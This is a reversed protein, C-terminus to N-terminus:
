LVPGAGKMVADPVDEAAIMAQRYEYPPRWDIESTTIDNKGSREYINTNIGSVYGAADEGLNTDIPTHCNYFYNNDTRVIGDIRSGVSYGENNAFYNNFVHAHGAILSPAREAINYFMNHHLTVKITGKDAASVGFLMAKYSDHLKSWSVTVYSSRKTIDILGEWYDWGHNRDSFLECHDIWIHDSQKINICDNDELGAIVNKITLNQVIVNSSEFIKIGIGNLTGGDVGVITKNSKVYISGTGSITGQIRIIMPGVVEVAKILDRLNTVTVTRGGEGGTTKGDVNAYGIIETGPFYNLDGPVQSPKGADGSVIAYTYKRGNTRPDTNDSASLYLDSGWHSFRGKGGERIDQHFSHAPGIEVGDEYIRVQSANARGSADGTANPIARKILLAFGGDPRSRSLDLDHQVIVGPSVVASLKEVEPQVHLDKQCNSLLLTVFVGCM